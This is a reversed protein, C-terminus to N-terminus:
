WIWTADSMAEVPLPFYLAILHRSLWFYTRRERKWEMHEVSRKQRKGLALYAMGKGWGGVSSM